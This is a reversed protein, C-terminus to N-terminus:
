IREILFIGIGNWFRVGGEGEEWLEWDKV